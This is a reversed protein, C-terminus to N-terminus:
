PHLPPRYGGREFFGRVDKVTVASTAVGQIEILVTCSRAGVKRLLINIKKAPAEGLTRPVVELALKACRKVSTSGEKFVRSAEVKSSGRQQLVAAGIKGRFDVSFVKM